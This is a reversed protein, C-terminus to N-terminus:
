NYHILVSIGTHGILLFTFQSFYGPFSGLLFLSLLQMCCCHNWWVRINGKYNVLTSRHSLVIGRRWSLKSQVPGLVTVWWVCIHYSTMPGFYMTLALRPDTKFLQGAGFCLSYVKVACHVKTCKRLRAIAHRRDTRRDTRRYRQHNTIVYIPFRPVLQM